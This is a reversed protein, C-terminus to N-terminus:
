YVNRGLATQFANIITSLTSAEDNTLGLGITSFACKKDDYEAPSGGNNNAGIFILDNPRATNGLATETIPTLLVGNRFFNRTANNTIASGLFYGTTASVSYTQIGKTPSSLINAANEPSKKLSIRAFEGGSNCGMTTNPLKNNDTLSYYSLHINNATPIASVPNVYTNGYANTGNPTAGSYDFTWGGNFTMRYAADTDIPNKANFKCGASNEGLMPYMAIIKSYLGNSVLSTFLTNTAASITPTIGIGGAAIVASLYAAADPNFTNTPTPTNTNTPTPTGTRTPTPTRTTTPTNTNTPTTTVAPTGTQTTTPTNTPTSTPNPTGTQTTTPTNTPTITPTISPTPTPTPPIPTASPDPEFFQVIDDIARQEGLYDSFQKRIFVRSM